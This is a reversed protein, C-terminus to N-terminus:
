QKNAIYQQEEGNVRANSPHVFHRGEHSEGYPFRYTGVEQNDDVPPTRISEM